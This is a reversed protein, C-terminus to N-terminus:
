YAVLKFVAITEPKIPPIQAALAYRSLDQPQVFQPQARAREQPVIWKHARSRFDAPDVRPDVALTLENLRRISDILQM